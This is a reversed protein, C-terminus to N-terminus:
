VFWWDAARIWTVGLLVDMGEVAQTGWTNDGDGNGVEPRGRERSKGSYLSADGPSRGDRSPHLRDGERTRSRSSSPPQRGRDMRERHREPSQTPPLMSSPQQSSEYGFGGYGGPRSSGYGNVGLNNSGYGDSRDYGGADSYGYGNAYGPRGSM